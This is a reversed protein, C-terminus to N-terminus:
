RRRWEGPSMGRYARFVTAFYQSSGFGCRLAIETVGDTGGELLRAAADVRLRGLARMPSEGCIRKTLEAFATRGMGCHAAMGDLTWSEDLRRPAQRRWFDTVREVGDPSRRQAQDRDLGDMLAAVLLHWWGRIAIEDRPDNRELLSVLRRFAQGMDSGTGALVPLRRDALRKLLADGEGARLGLTEPLRLGNMGHEANGVLPVLLWCLEVSPIQPDRAGHIQWPWSFSCHGAPVFVEEGEYDWRVEGNLVYVLELGPDRHPGLIRRRKSPGWFGHNLFLKM